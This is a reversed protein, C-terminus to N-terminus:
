TLLFLLIAPMGGEWLSVKGFLVLVEEGPGLYELSLFSKEPFFKMMLVGLVVVAVAVAVEVQLDLCCTESTGLFWFHRFLSFLWLTTQMILMSSM